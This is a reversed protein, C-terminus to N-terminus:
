VFFSLSSAAFQNGLLFLRNTGTGGDANMLGTVQGVLGLTDDLDALNVLFVDLVINYSANVIDMGDGTEVRATAIVGQKNTAPGTIYNGYVYVTDNGGSHFPRFPSVSATDVFLHPTQCRAITITDDINYPAQEPPHPVSGLFISRTLVEIRVAAFCTDIYVSNQGSSTSIRLAGGASSTFIGINNCKHSGSQL